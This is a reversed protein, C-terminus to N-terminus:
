VKLSKFKIFNEGFTEGTPFFKWFKDFNDSINEPSNEEPPFKELPVKQFKEFTFM